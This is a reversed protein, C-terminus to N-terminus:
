VPWWIYKMVPDRWLFPCEIDEPWADIHKISVVVVFVWHFFLALAAFVFFALLAVIFIASCVIVLRPISQNRHLRVLLWMFAISGLFIYGIPIKSLFGLWASDKLMDFDTAVLSVLITFGLESAIWGRQWSFGAAFARRCGSSSPFVANRFAIVSKMMRSEDAELEKLSMNSSLPSTLIIALTLCAIAIGCVYFELVTFDIVSIVAQHLVRRHVLVTGLVCQCIYLSTIILAIKKAVSAPEYRCSPENPSQKDHSDFTPINEEDVITQSPLKTGDAGDDGDAQMPQPYVIMMRWYFKIKNIRQNREWILVEVPIALFSWLCHWLLIFPCMIFLLVRALVIRDQQLWLLHVLMAITTIFAMGVRLGVELGTLRTDLPCASPLQPTASASSISVNAISDSM